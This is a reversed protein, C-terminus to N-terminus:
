YQHLMRHPCMGINIVEGYKSFLEKVEEYQIDPSM